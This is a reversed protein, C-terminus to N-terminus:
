ANQRSKRIAEIRQALTPHSYTLAVLLPSPSLDGYNQRALKKLALILAEGCGESVAHADARYEARRSYGNTLLGFLPALLAFEVRMILIVAFGYNVGEFGFATFLAPTRLTLWALTGIVLMEVFTMLQQKLTDRHLGHGLEHAFVAVIEDPTMIEVLTDYLVVTKM